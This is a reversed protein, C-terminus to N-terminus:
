YVYIFISSYHCLLIMYALYLRLSPTTILGPHLGHFPGCGPAEVSMYPILGPLATNHYLTAYM